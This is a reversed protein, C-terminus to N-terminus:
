FKGVGGDQDQRRCIKIKIYNVERYRRKVILAKQTGKFFDKGIWLLSFIRKNELNRIRDQKEWKPGHYPLSKTLLILYLHLIVKEKYLYVIPDANNISIITREGSSQLAMKRM